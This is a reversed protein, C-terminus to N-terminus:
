FDLGIAKAANSIRTGLEDERQNWIDLGLLGGGAGGLGGLM